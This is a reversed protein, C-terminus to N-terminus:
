EEHLAPSVRLALAACTLAVALKLGSKSIDYSPGQSKGLHEILFKIM